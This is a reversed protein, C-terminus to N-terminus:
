QLDVSAMLFKAVILQRCDLMPIRLHYCLLVPAYNFNFISDSKLNSFIRYQNVDLSEGRRQMSIKEIAQFCQVEREIKINKKERSQIINLKV